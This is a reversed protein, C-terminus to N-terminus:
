RLVRIGGLVLKLVTEQGKTEETSQTGVPDPDWIRIINTEEIDLM